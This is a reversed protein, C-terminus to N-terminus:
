PAVCHGHAVRSERDCEAHDNETVRGCFRNGNGIEERARRRLIPACGIGLVREVHLQRVSPDDDLEGGPDRWLVDGVDFRECAGLIEVSQRDDAHLVVVDNLPVIGRVMTGNRRRHARGHFEDGRRAGLPTERPGRDATV